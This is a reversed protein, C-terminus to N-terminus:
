NWEPPTTPDDLFNLKCSRAADNWTAGYIGRPLSRLDPYLWQTQNTINLGMSMGSYNPNEWLRFLVGYETSQPNQVTLRVSSIAQSFGISSLDSVHIWRTGSSSIQFTKSDGRYNVDKYISATASTEGNSRTTAIEDNYLSVGFKSRLMKMFDEHTDFYERNGNEDIYITLEPLNKFHNVISDTMTYYFKGNYNFSSIIPIGKGKPNMEDNPFDQECSIM